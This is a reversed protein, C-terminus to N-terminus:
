FGVAQPSGRPVRFITWLARIWKADFFSIQVSHVITPTPYLIYRPRSEPRAFRFVAAILYQEIGTHEGRSGHGCNLCGLGETNSFFHVTVFLPCYAKRNSGHAGTLIRSSRRDHPTLNPCIFNESIGSNRFEKKFGYTIVLNLISNRFKLVIFIKRFESIGFNWFDEEFNRFERFIM